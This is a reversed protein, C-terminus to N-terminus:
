DAYILNKIYHILEIEINAKREGQEILTDIHIKLQTKCSDMIEDTNM